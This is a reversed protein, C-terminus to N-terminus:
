IKAALGIIRLNECNEDIGGPVYWSIVEVQVHGNGMDSVFLL